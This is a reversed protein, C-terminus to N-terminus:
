LWKADATLANEHRVAEIPNNHSGIYELAIAQMLNPM